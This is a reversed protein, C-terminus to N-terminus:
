LESAEANLRACNREAVSRLHTIRVSVIGSGGRKAEKVHMPVERYCDHTDAVWYSTSLKADGSSVHNGPVNAYGTISHVEYRDSM